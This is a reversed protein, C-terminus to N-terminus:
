LGCGGYHLIKAMGHISIWNKPGSVGRNQGLDGPNLGWCSLEAIQRIYTISGGLIHQKMGLIMIRQRTPHELGEPHHEHPSSFAL